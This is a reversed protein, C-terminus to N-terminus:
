FNQYKKWSILKKLMYTKDKKISDSKKVIDLLFSITSDYIRKNVPYPIGDKGGHAYSFSIPDKFSLPTGYIIHATLALARITKTGIGKSMLLSKFDDRYDKHTFIINKVRKINIDKYFIEHRQPFKFSDWQKLYKEIKSKNNFLETMSSHLTEQGKKVINICSKEKKGSIDKHPSSFYDRIDNSYWHYRRSYKNKYNLGQDIVVWDTGDTFFFQMYINYGDQIGASDIKATLKSYKILNRMGSLAMEDPIKRSYKGKGGFAKIKYASSNM